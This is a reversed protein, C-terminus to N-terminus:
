PAGGYFVIYAGGDVEEASTKKSATLPEMWSQMVPSTYASYANTQPHPITDNVDDWMTPISNSPNTTKYWYNGDYTMTQPYTDPGVNDTQGVNGYQVLNHNYYCNTTWNHAVGPSGENLIRLLGSTPAVM